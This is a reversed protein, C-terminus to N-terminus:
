NFVSVLLKFFLVSLAWPVKWEAEAIVTLNKGKLLDCPFYKIRQFVLKSFFRSGFLESLIWCVYTVMTKGITFVASLNWGPHAVPLVHFGM